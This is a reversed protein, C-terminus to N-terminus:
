MGRVVDFSSTLRPAWDMGVSSSRPLRVGPPLHRRSVMCAGRRLSQITSAAVYQLATRRVLSPVIETLRAVKFDQKWYSAFDM